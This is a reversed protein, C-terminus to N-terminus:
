TANTALMILILKLMTVAQDLLDRQVQTLNKIYEKIEFVTPSDSTAIMTARFIQELSELNFDDKYFTCIVKCNEEFDSKM